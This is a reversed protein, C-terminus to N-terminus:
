LNVISKWAKIIVFQMVKDQRNDAKRPLAAPFVM